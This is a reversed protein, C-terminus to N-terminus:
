HPGLSFFQVAPTHSRRLWNCSQSRVPDSARVELRSQAEFRRIRESFEERTDADRLDVSSLQFGGSLYHVHADNFGPLVLRGQADLVRTQPGACQRIEESTGIAAIRHGLIAMAELRYDGLRDSSSNWLAHKPVRPPTDVGGCM